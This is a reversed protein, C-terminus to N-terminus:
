CGGAIRIIEAFDHAKLSAGGVLAGDIDPQKILGEINNPKVSGGYLIRIKEAIDGLVEKLISRIFAHVEQAIEPTAVKGTGIAWVPEYAIVLNDPTDLCVDRLAGKLQTNVVEFVKGAEREELKEGVCLIPTIGVDLLAKIKKNIQEDTEGFYIRRESHGVICHDCGVDKLMTPSVEGTFAGETEWFVDQAALKVTAGRLAISVPWLYPFPPAVGIDVKEVVEPPINLLLENVLSLSSNLHKHMKWNGCIFPKRM